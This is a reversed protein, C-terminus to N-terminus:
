ISKITILVVIGIACLWILFTEWNKVKYWWDPMDRALSTSSSYFGTSSSWLTLKVSGPAMAQTGTSALEIDHFFTTVPTLPFKYTLANAQYILDNFSSETPFFWFCGTQKLACQIDYMISSTPPSYDGCGLVDDNCFTPWTPPTNAICYQSTTNNTFLIPFSWIVNTAGSTWACMNHVGETQAPIIIQFPSQNFFDLNYNRAGSGLGTCFESDIDYHLVSNDLGQSFTIPLICDQGACCKNNNLVLDLDDSIATQSLVLNDLYSYDHGTQARTIWVSDISNIGGNNIFNQSTSGTSNYGNSYCKFKGSNNDFDIRVRDYGTTTAIDFYQSSDSGVCVLNGSAHDKYIQIDHSGDHGLYYKCSGYDCNFALDFSFSGSNYPTFFNYSTQGNSTADFVRTRLGSDVFGYSDFYAAWLNGQFYGSSTIQCISGPCPAGSLGTFSETQQAAHVPNSFLAACFLFIATCLVRVKLSACELAKNKLQEM